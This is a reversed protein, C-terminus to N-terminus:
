IEPLEEEDKSKKRQKFYAVFFFHKPSQMESAYINLEINLACLSQCIKGVIIFLLQYIHKYRFEYRFTCHIFFFQTQLIMPICIWRERIKSCQMIKWDVYILVNQTMKGTAGRGGGGAGVPGLPSGGRM